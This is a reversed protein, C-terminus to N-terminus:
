RLLTVTGARHVKTGDNITANIVWVYVGEQCAYGSPHRGNWREEMNYLTILHHGWRDYINMNMFVVGVGVPHFFDNHGDGNPTFANPVYIAGPPLLTFTKEITDPCGFNQDYAILRVTYIGEQTYIHTPNEENSQSGDGFDWLYSTALQSLNTFRVGQENIIITDSLSLDHEFDAIPPDATGITVELTQECMNSDVVSVTYPGGFPAGFLDVALPGTQVPNTDWSYTYAGVGGSAAVTVSGNDLNCFADEMDVIEILIEPPETITLTDMIPCDNSDTVTVIHQGATFNNVIPSTSGNTWSFNYPPTGGVVFVGGTGDNGGFCTVDTFYTSDFEFSPPGIVETSVSIQCNNDDTVLVTYNGAPLNTATQQMHGSSWDYSYPSVGGTINATATANSDGACRLETVDIEGLLKTPETLFATTEDSCGNADRMIIRYNGAALNELTNDTTWTQATDASFEYPPTGGTGALAISGSPTGFCLVNQISAVNVAVPQPEIIQVSISDLCNYFDETYFTYTGAALNSFVSDNVFNIGDISYKYPDTGGNATLVVEGDFLGFCSIHSIQATLASLVPPEDIDFDITAQVTIRM